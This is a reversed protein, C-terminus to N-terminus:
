VSKEMLYFFLSYNRIWKIFNINSQLSLWSCVTSHWEHTYLGFDKVLYIWWCIYLIICWLWHPENWQHLGPEFIWFWDTCDILSPQLLFIVHHHQFCFFSTCFEDRIWLLFECFFYACLPYEEIKIFPMLFLIFALLISLPLLSFNNGGSILLSPLIGM